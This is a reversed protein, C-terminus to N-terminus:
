NQFFYDNHVLLVKSKIPSDPKMPLVNNSKINVFSFVNRIPLIKIKLLPLVFNLIFFLKLFFKKILNM